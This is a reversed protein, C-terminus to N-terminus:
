KRHKLQPVGTMGSTIYYEQVRCELTAITGKRVRLEGKRWVILEKRIVPTGEGKSPDHRRYKPIGLNSQKDDLFSPAQGFYELIDWISLINNADWCVSSVWFLAKHECMSCSSIRLKFTLSVSTAM